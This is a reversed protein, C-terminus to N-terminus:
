EYPRQGIRIHQSHSNGRPCVPIIALNKAANARFRARKGNIQMPTSSIQLYNFKPSKIQVGTLWHTAAASVHLVERRSTPM